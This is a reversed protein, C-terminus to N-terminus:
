PRVNGKPRDKDDDKKKPAALNKLFKNTKERFSEVNEKTEELQQAIKISYNRNTLDPDRKDNGYSDFYVCARLSAEIKPEPKGHPYGLTIIAEVRANKPVSFLAAIRDHDFGGVWCAGIGLAHAALLINQAAAAANQSAFTTKGREGYWEGQKEPQSCIVIVGTASSMWFQDMCLEPLALITKKDQTIIFRYEQLNGATPAKMGMEVLLLLDDKQVPRAKYDRISRRETIAQFIDMKQRTM